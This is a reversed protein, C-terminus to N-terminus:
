LNGGRLNRSRGNYRNIYRQRQKELALLGSEMDQISRYTSKVKMQGDDFNMEVYGSQGISKIIKLELADILNNYRIIKDYTNSACDVYQSISLYNDNM